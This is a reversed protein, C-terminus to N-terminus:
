FEKKEYIRVSLWLSLFLGAAALIVAAIEGYQMIKEANIRIGALVAGNDDLQSLGLVGLSLCIFVAMYVFRAKEVGLKYIVPFLLLQMLITVLLIQFLSHLSEPINVGGKILGRLLMLLCCALSVGIDILFAFLYRAEVIEKRTLPLSIAYTDWGCAKDLSFVTMTSMIGILIILMFLFSDANMFYSYFFCFVAVILWSKMQGEMLYYEKKLLGIM